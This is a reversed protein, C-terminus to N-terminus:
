VIDDDAFKVPLTVAVAPAIDSAVVVIVPLKDVVPAYIGLTTPYADADVIVRLTFVVSSAVVM